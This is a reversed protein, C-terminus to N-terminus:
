AARDSCETAAWRTQIARKSVGLELAIKQQSLSREHRRFRIEEVKQEEDWTFWGERITGNSPNRGHKRRIREIYSPHRDEYVMGVEVSDMGEYAGIIRAELDEESEYQRESATSSDKNRRWDRQSWKARKADREAAYCLWLLREPNDVARSLHWCHWDFLSDDPSPMDGRRGRVGRPISSEFHKTTQKARMGGGGKREDDTPALKPSSAPAESVLLLDCLVHRVRERLERDSIRAIWERESM